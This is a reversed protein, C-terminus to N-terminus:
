PHDREDFVTERNRGVAVAETDTRHGVELGHQLHDREGDEHGEGGDVQLLRDREVM